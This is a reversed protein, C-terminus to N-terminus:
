LLVLPRVNNPAMFRWSEEVHATLYGPWLGPLSASEARCLPVQYKTSEVGIFLFLSFLILVLLWSSLSVEAVHVCSMCVLMTERLLLYGDLLDVM